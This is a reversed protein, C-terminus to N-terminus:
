SKKLLVSGLVNDSADCQFFFPLNFDPNELISASVMADKLINFSYSAEATWVFKKKFNRIVDIISDAIEDRQLDVIGSM